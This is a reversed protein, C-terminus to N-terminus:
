YGRKLNCVAFSLSNHKWLAVLVEEKVKLSDELSKAGESVDSLDAKGRAPDRNIVPEQLLLSSLLGLIPWPRKCASRGKAGESCIFFSWSSVDTVIGIRFLVDKLHGLRFGPGFSHCGM